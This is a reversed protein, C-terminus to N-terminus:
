LRNKRYVIWTITSGSIESQGPYKVHALRENALCELAFGYYVVALGQYLPL